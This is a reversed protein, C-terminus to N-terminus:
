WSRCWWTRWARCCIARRRMHERMEFHRDHERVLVVPVSKLSTWSVRAHVKSCTARQIEMYDPLDLLEHLM